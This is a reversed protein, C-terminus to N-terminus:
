EHQVESEAVCQSEAHHYRRGQQIYYTSGDLGTATYEMDTVIYFVPTHQLVVSGYAKIAFGTEAAMSFSM